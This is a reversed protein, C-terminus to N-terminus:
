SASFKTFIYVYAYLFFSYLTVFTGVCLFIPLFFEHMGAGSPPNAGSSSKSLASGDEFEVYIPEDDVLHGNITAVAREAHEREQFHQM